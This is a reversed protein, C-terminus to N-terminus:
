HLTVAPTEGRLIEGIQERSYCFARNCFECTLEVSGRELLISELEESGLMRTVGALHKPTCRCDHAVERPAFLRIDFGAFLRRLLTTSASTVLETRELTAALACAMDFEERSRAGPLMQLVLGCAHEDDSFLILRTPLQESQRFYAELCEGITDGELPVIGQFFGNKQGTDIHVSLRGAALLSDDTHERRRQAMARVRLEGSCQVVLLRLAGDGQLQVSVRPRDKLSAGLLVTAAVAEGLLDRVDKGYHHQAITQLWTERLRVIGGRIGLEEFVFSQVENM